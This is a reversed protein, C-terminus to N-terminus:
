DALVYKPSPGYQNGDPASDKCFWIILIITGVVPILNLLLWWGSRGIDHLRRVGVALSPIIIAVSFIWSLIGGAGVGTDIRAIIISAVCVFLYAWWYESRRARGSFTAYKNFYIKVADTFSLQPRITYSDNEMNYLTKFNIDRTRRLRM